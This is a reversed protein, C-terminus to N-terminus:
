LSQTLRKGTREWATDGSIIIMPVREFHAAAIGTMVNTGGPGATVLVAATKGSARYAGMAEFAAYTEHRPEILTASPNSLVAEFVGIISGGPVGFFTDIGLECLLAVIANAVTTTNACELEGSQDLYDVYESSRHASAM